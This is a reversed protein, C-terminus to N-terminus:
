LSTLFEDLSEKASLNLKKKLRAKAIKVAHITTGRIDAIEKRTLKMKTFVAIEIETKSLKPFKSTLSIIFNTNYDKIQQKLILLKKDEIKNSRIDALVSNINIQTDKKVIKQLSDSIKLKSQLQKVSEMQLAIIEKAKLSIDKEKSILQAVLNMKENDLSRYRDILALSLLIVEVISGIMYANLTIINEPILVFATLGYIVISVCYCLWAIVLYKAFSNGALYVKIGAYLAIFSCAMVGLAVFENTPHVNFVEYSIIEYALAIIEYYFVFNLLWHSSKSYRKTELFHICFKATVMTGFAIFIAGCWQQLFYWDDILFKKLFGRVTIQVLLGGLITGTYLFYVKDKLGIGLLLNYFIIILLAGIILSMILLENQEDKFYDDKTLISIAFSKGYKSYTKLYFTQSQKPSFEIPFYQSTGAIPKDDENVLYGNNYQKWKNNVKYYLTLSDQLSKRIKLIKKLHKDGYNKVNFKLWTVTNTFGFNIVKSDSKKYNFHVAENISKKLSADETFYIYNGLLENAYIKDIPIVEYSSISTPKESQSICPTTFILILVGFFLQNIKM